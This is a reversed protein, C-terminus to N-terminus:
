DREFGYILTDPQFAAWAFWFHPFAFQQRLQKGALEGKTAAGFVNWVSGTQDDQILGSEDASFTLVQGDLEREFLAAMGVDQSDDISSQDLASAAGPQWFAVVDIEGITDNIVIEEALAAFPYAIAEGGIIGALVRETPFLRDDLEGRFLFPQASSDYGVYPNSGYSRGNRSLVEGEPYQEVFAGFGVVQSPLITLMTGTYSGVIGEGTFQQWWSQTVDDWMILDSNRLLGSVGFRLVQGDVTRDFVIASNCLPCFTVAVPTDGIVDNVIEHRTLIALPYARAVDNFALAIVPSQPQLWTSADAISEFAPNDIPPIGDRPVGGSIIEDYVGAQHQCFDTKDWVRTLGSVDIPPNDCSLQANVVHSTASIGPLILTAGALLLVGVAISLRVGIGKGKVM